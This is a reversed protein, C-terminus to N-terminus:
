EQNRTTESHTDLNATTCHQLRRLGGSTRTDSLVRRSSDQLRRVLFSKAISRFHHSSLSYVIFNISFTAYVMLNSLHEALLDVGTFATNPDRIILVLNKMRVVYSPLNMAVFVTSIILLTKTIKKQNRRRIRQNKLTIGDTKTCQQQPGYRHEPGDGCSDTWLRHVIAANFGSILLFPIILVVVSDIVNFVLATQFKGDIVNCSGKATLGLTLLVSVSNFVTPM